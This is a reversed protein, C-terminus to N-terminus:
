AMPSTWATKVLCAGLNVREALRISHAVAIFVLVAKQERSGTLCALRPQELALL